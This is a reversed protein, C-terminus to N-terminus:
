KIHFINKLKKIFKSLMGEKIEILAKEQPIPQPQQLIPNSNNQFINDPNYKERLEAQYKEENAKFLQELEEKEEQSKCWYNLKLLALINITEELLNQKELPEEPDIIVIYEDDKNTRLFSLFKKPIEKIYEYGLIQLIEYVEAYAKNISNEM